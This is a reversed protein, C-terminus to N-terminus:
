EIRKVIHWGFPSDTAHYDAMGIEGVGLSFSVDGFGKVMGDRKFMHVGPKSAVGSNAMHYIGPPSDDTFRAVLQDFDEGGQARRLVDKALKEAEERTRSIPKGPVSGEFGILIHQVSVYDAAVVNDGSQKSAQETGSEQESGCGWFAFVTIAFMAFLYKKVSNEKEAAVRANLWQSV